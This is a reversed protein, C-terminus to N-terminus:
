QPKVIFSFAIGKLPCKSSNRLKEFSTNLNALSIRKIVSQFSMYCVSIILINIYLLLLVVTTINNYDFLMILANHICHCYWTALFWFSITKKASSTEFVNNRFSKIKQFRTVGFYLIKTVGFKSFIYSLVRRLGCFFCKSVSVKMFSMLSQPTSLVREIM